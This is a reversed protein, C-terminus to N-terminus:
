AYFGSAIVLAQGNVGRAGETCLYWALDAIEEPELIRQQPSLMRFQELVAEASIAQRRAEEAVIWDLMDSRVFWPCLANVTIGRGAFEKALCRTLGLLGHKSVTYATEEATGKTASTSAVNVIRGWGRAAMHPLVGRCLSFPAHLNVALLGHWTADDLSTTPGLHYVGANNVLIEVPGLGAEVADLLQDAADPAALDAAIALAEGGAARVEDSVRDVPAAQRATVAVRCRARGFRRAVARGIGRSAGTVLVVKGRLEDGAVAGEETRM